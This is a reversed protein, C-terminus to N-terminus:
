WINVELNFTKSKTKKLIEEFRKDLPYGKVEFDSKM